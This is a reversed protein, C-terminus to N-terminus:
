KHRDNKMNNDFTIRLFDLHSECNVYNILTTLKKKSVFKPLLGRRYLGGMLKGFYPTAFYEYRRKNNKLFRHHRTVLEDSNQIISNLEKISNNFGETEERTLRRIFPNDQSQLYPILDFSLTTDFNLLVLYGSNWHNNGKVM